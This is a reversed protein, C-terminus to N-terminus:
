ANGEAVARELPARAATVFALMVDASSRMLLAAADRSLALPLGAEDAVGQWDAILEAALVEARLQLALGIRMEETLATGADALARQVALNAATDIAASMPRLFLRVGHPMDHWSAETPLNLRLM